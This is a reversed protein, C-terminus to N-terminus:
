TDPLQFLQVLNGDPDELTCVVGGWEEREPARVVPVGSAALRAHMVEVDDVAFNVMTRLPDRAFGDVGDHVTVTLRVDAWEFSVFGSRDRRVPLGLVDRYFHAMADFGASSTWVLVGAFGTV